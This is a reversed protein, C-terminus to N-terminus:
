LCRCCLRFSGSPLYLISEAGPYPQHIGNSIAYACEQIIKHTPLKKTRITPKYTNLHILRQYTEKTQQQHVTACRRFTSWFFHSSCCLNAILARFLRRHSRDSPHRPTSAFSLSFSLSFRGLFCHSASCSNSSTSRSFALLHRAEIPMRFMSDLGSPSGLSLSWSFSRRSTPQLLLSDTSFM